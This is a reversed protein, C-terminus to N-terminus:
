FPKTIIKILQRAQAADDTVQKKNPGSFIASAAYPSGNEASYFPMGVDAHAHAYVCTSLKRAEELGNFSEIVGEKEPYLDMCISYQKPEKPIVPNLGEIRSVLDNYYHDIGYSERYLDERHGGIRPGLEIIKWIGNCNYLEIHATCSRLNLAEVSQKAAKELAQLEENNLETPLQFEYGYFGSLGVDHSTIVRVPPLCWIKGDPSVYADTSYMDGEIFEEILVQPSGSGREREYIEEIVSFTKELAALLEDHDECKMVLISSNLGSPKVILPFQMNETIKQISSIQQKEIVSFHPVLEPNYERLRERMLSKVTAWRLSSENPTAVGALLPVIKAFDQIASEDRCNVALIHEQFPKVTEQLLATDDFDLEIEEFFGTDDKRYDLTKKYKEDVLHIGQLGVGLEASIRKAATVLGQEVKGISLIINKM